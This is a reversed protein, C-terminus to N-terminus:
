FDRPDVFIVPTSPALKIWDHTDSDQSVGRTLRKICWFDEDWSFKKLHPICERIPDAPGVEAVVAGCGDDDKAMNHVFTCLSKMLRSAGSGEMYLGYLLYVGFQRFIDITPLGFWPACSELVRSGACFAYTLRSVGKVELKFVEKSNWVSLIAFCKPLVNTQPDWNPLSKKPMAMFTGLNLKNSLILDIDKPFFESNAFACRYISTALEAPVTAIAISSSLPKCHAHVPQVLMAPTRFKTYDSKLTFLNISAKNTCETAMYMYEAGTHKCWEELKQVLKTGVGCRRHTPSVRLGLVYALKVYHPIDDFDDGLAKDKGSTVTKVSGRIVGVIEGEKVDEAVLMVYISCHRVRAVPDGMLDTVLSPKKKKKKKGMDLECRREMEVVAEKDGEENYERVVVEAKKAVEGSAGRGQAEEGPLSEAAIKPSM